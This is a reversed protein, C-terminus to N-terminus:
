LVIKTYKLFCPIFFERRTDMPMGISTVCSLAVYSRPNYCSFTKSDRGHQLQQQENSVTPLSLLSFEPRSYTSRDQVFISKLLRYYYNDIKIEPV